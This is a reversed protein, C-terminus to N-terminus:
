LLRLRQAAARAAQHWSFEPFTVAQATQDFRCNVPRVLPRHDAGVTVVVRGFSGAALAKLCEARSLTVLQPAALESRGDAPSARAGALTARQRRRIRSRDAAPVSRSPRPVRRHEGAGAPAASWPMGPLASRDGAMRAHGGSLTLEEEVLGALSEARALELMPHTPQDAPPRFQSVYVLIRAAEPEVLTGALAAGDKGGPRGDVGVIVHTYV